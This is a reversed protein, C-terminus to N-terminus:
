ASARRLEQQNVFDAFSKSTLLYVRVRKVAFIVAIAERECVSHKREAGYMTRSALLIPHFKRDNKEQALVARIALSSANIEVVTPM